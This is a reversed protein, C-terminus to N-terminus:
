ICRLRSCSRAAPRASPTMEEYGAARFVADTREIESAVTAGSAFVMRRGSYTHNGLEHGAAIIARLM